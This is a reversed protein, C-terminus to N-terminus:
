GSEPELQGAEAETGGAGDDPDSMDADDQPIHAPGPAHAQRGGVNRGHRRRCDAWLTRRRLPSSPPRWRGPGYFPSLLRRRRRRRRRCRRSRGGMSGDWSGVVM